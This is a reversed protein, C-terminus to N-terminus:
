AGSFSKKLVFFLDNLDYETKVEFMYAHNWGKSTIDIVGPIKGLIKEDKPKGFEVQLKSKLLKVVCFSRKDYFVIYLKRYRVEFSRWNMLEGEVQEFLEWIPETTAKKHHERGYDKIESKVKNIVSSHGGISRSFESLKANRDLSEKEFQFFDNELWAFRYLEVPLGQFSIATKQRESFQECVFIVRANEWSYNDPDPSIGHKKHLTVAFDAKRSFLINLYELGQDFLSKEFSKKFEIIVPANAEEDFALTDFRVNEISFESDVFKLDLLELLNAEVLNQVDRELISKKGIPVLAKNTVKYFM